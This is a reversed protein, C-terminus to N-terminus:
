FHQKRKDLAKSILYTTATILNILFPYSFTGPHDDNDNFLVSPAVSKEEELSKHTQASFYQHKM